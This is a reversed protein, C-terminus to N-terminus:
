HAPAAPRSTRSSRLHCSSPPRQSTTQSLHRRAFPLCSTQYYVPDTQSTKWLCETIPPFTQRDKRLNFGALSKSTFVPWPKSSHKAKNPPNELPKEVPGPTCAQDAKSTAPKSGSEESEEEPMASYKDAQHGQVGSRGTRTADAPM